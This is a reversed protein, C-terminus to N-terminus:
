VVSSDAANGRVDFDESNEKVDYDVTNGKVDPNESDQATFPFGAFESTIDTFKVKHPQCDQGESM